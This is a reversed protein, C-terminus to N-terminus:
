VEPVESFFQFDVTDDEDDYLEFNSLDEPHTIKPIIPPTTSRLLGWNIGQFFPHKKIDAAGRKSCIRKKPKLKLLGKILSKM